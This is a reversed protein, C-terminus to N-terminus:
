AAMGRSGAVSTQASTLTLTCSDRVTGQIHRGMVAAREEGPLSLALPVPGVRSHIGWPRPLGATVPLCVCFAGVTGPEPHAHQIHTGTNNQATSSM